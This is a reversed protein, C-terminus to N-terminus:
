KRLSGRRLMIISWATEFPRDDAAHNNGTWFGVPNQGDVLSQLTTNGPTAQSIEVAYRDAPNAPQMHSSLAAQDAQMVAPPVTIGFSKMAAALGATAWQAGPRPGKPCVAETVASFRCYSYGDVLDQVIEKYTRGSINEPGSMVKANPTGSAVIADIFQGTPDPAQAANEGRAVFV